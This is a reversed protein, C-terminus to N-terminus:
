TTCARVFFHVKRLGRLNWNQLSLERNSSLHFFRRKRASEFPKLKHHVLLGSKRVFIGILATKLHGYNTQLTSTLVSQGMLLQCARASTKKNFKALGGFKPQSVMTETESHPFKSEICAVSEGGGILERSFFDVKEKKTKKL